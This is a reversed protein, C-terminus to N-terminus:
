SQIVTHFSTKLNEVVVQRKPLHVSSRVSCQSVRTSIQVKKSVIEQQEQARPERQDLWILWTLTPNLHDKHHEMKTSSGKSSSSSLWLTLELHLLTWIRQVLREIRLGLTSRTQFRKTVLFPLSYPEKSMCVRQLINVSMWVKRPDRRQSPLCIKCRRTTFRSWLFRYLTSLQTLLNLMKRPSENSFKKVLEQFSVKTRAMAWSLTAKAQDRRVTHSCVLTSAMGPM